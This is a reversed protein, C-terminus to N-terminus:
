ISFQVQYTYEKCQEFFRMLDNRLSLKSFIQEEEVDNLSRSLGKSFAKASDISRQTNSSMMEFDDTDHALSSKFLEPFAKVLRKAIEINEQAGNGALQKENDKTFDNHWGKIALYEDKLEMDELKTLLEATRKADGSSPFRTGHRLVMSLQSPSCQAPYFQEKNIDPLPQSKVGSASVYDSFWRRALKYPTKTSFLTQDLYSPQSEKRVAFVLLSSCLLLTILMKKHIRQTVTM